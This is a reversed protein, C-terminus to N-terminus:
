GVEGLKDDFLHEKVFTNSSSKYSYVGNRSTGVFLADESIPLISTIELGKLGSLSGEYVSQEHTISSIALLEATNTGIWISGDKTQTITTVITDDLRLAKNHSKTNKRNKSISYLGKNTGVWIRSQSDEFLEYIELGNEDLGLNFLEFSEDDHTYVNLGDGLTGVWLIGSSDVLLAKIYDGTLTKNNSQERRFVKFEYGDYRSLGNGTAFWMYGTNDQVIDQVLSQSLGDLISYREFNQYSEKVGRAELTNVVVLLTFRLVWRGWFQVGM